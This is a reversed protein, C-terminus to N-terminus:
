VFMKSKVMNQIHVQVEGLAVKAADCQEQSESFVQKIADRFFSHKGFCEEVRHRATKHAQLHCLVCRVKDEEIRD